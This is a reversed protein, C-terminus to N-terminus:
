HPSMMELIKLHHEAKERDNQLRYIEVLWRRIQLASPNLELAKEGAVASERYQDLQGYLHSLRGFYEFDWPDVKILRQACEIGKKWEGNEHYLMMLRRLANENNPFRALVKEWTQVAKRVDGVLWYATGLSILADWDDPAVRIWKELPSIADIVLAQQGRQEAMKILSIAQARVLESEPIDGEEAGFVYLSLKKKQKSHKKKKKELRRLVRHDTQSTHPVDNADLKPMHCVICSDEPTAKQRIEVSESCEVQGSNHCALCRDRYFRIRESEPPTGHPDHCSVCGFKGESKIYCTSGLMQEVQSVAATSQDEDVTKQKLFITWIDTFRDGPRFDFHSRKYRTLRYEGILHCQFCVDDRLKSSLDEPNVIPDDGEVNERQQYEIHKQGPGHCQECSISEEIFPNAEYRDTSDPIRAVRGVHCSLCGDVIRRAFHLNNSKYGPSLDWQGSESYWTVPSMFMLGSHNILYSRGRQGSGMAYAIPVAQDYIVKNDDTRAIEHHFVQKDKKEVRYSITVPIRPARATKFETKDTYDELASVETVKGFSQGMPHTNVYRNYIEEHCEICAKSGAFDQSVPPPIEPAPFGPDEEKQETVASDNEQKQDQNSGSCGFIQLCFLIAVLVVLGIQDIRPQIMMTM